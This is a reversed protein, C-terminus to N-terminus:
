SGTSEPVRTLRSYLNLQETVCSDVYFVVSVRNLFISVKLLVSLFNRILKVRKAASRDM